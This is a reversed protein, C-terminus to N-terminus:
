IPLYIISLCIMPRIGMMDGIEEDFIDLYNLVFPHIILVATRRGFHKMYQRMQDM